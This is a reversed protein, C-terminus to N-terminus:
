MTNPKVMGLSFSDCRDIQMSACSRNFEHNVLLLQLWTKTQEKINESDAGRATDVLCPNQTQMTQLFSTAAFRLQLSSPAADFTNERCKANLEIM